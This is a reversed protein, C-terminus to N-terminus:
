ERCKEQRGAVRGSPRRVGQVEHQDDAVIVAIGIEAEHAGGVHLRRVQIPEGALPQQKGVAEDSRANTTWGQAGQEGTKVRVLPVDAHLLEAARSHLDRVALPDLAELRQGPQECLAAVPAKLGSLEPLRAVFQGSEGIPHHAATPRVRLALRPRQAAFRKCGDEVEDVVLGIL